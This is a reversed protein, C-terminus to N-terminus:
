YLGWDQTPATTINCFTLSPTIELKVASTRDHVDCSHNRHVSLLIELVNYQFWEYPTHFLTLLQWSLPDKAVTIMVIIKTTETKLKLINLLIVWQSDWLFIIDFIYLMCQPILITKTRILNTELLWTVITKSGYRLRVVTMTDYDYSTREDEKALFIGAIRHKEM